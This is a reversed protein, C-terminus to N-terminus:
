ASRSLDPHVQVDISVRVIPEDDITADSKAIIRLGPELDDHGIGSENDLPSVTQEPDNCGM